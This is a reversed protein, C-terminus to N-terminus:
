INMRAYKEKDTLGVGLPVDLQILIDSSIEKQKKFVIEPTLPKKENQGNKMLQFGGSDCKSLLDHAQLRRVLEARQGKKDQYLLDYANSLVGEIEAQLFAQEQLDIKEIISLGVWMFPTEIIKGNPLRIQKAQNYRFNSHPLHKEKSDIAKYYEPNNLKIFQPLTTM